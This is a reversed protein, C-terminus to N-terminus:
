ASQSQIGFQRWWIRMIKYKPNRVCKKTKKDITNAVKKGIEFLNFIISRAARPAVHTGSQKPVFPCMSLRFCPAQLAPNSFWAVEFFCLKRALIVGGMNESM